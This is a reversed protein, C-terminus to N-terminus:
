RAEIKMQLLGTLTTLLFVLRMKADTTEHGDGTLSALMAQQTKIEWQLAEIRQDLTPPLEYLSNPNSSMISERRVPPLMGPSETVSAQRM